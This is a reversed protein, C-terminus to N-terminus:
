LMKIGHVFWFRLSVRLRIFSPVSLRVFLALLDAFLSFVVAFTSRESDDFDCAVSAYLGEIVVIFDVLFLLFLLSLRSKWKKM